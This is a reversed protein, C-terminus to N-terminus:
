NKVNWLHMNWASNQVPINEVRNSVLMTRVDYFVGMANLESSVHQVIQGMVQVRADWPITALLRDILEDLEPSNYRSQNRGTYRPPLRAETGKYRDLYAAGIPQRVVYFSPYNASYEVDTARQVPVVVPEAAVGVRQWYDSVPILTKTHIVPNTTARVELALRQGSPDRLVGDPNTVYGLEGLMQSARQPSYDYRVARAETGTSFPDGPRVYSHAVPVLGAQIEDAMAQRDIAHLLARRFRVDATIAPSPNVFQPYIVLWFNVPTSELRGSRWQDRVALSEELSLGTGLTVDVAGALLNSSLTNADTVFRVEVEDIKPRGLVYRDNADLM